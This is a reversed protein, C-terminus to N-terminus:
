GGKTAADLATSNLWAAWADLRTYIAATCDGAGRSAIAFLKGAADIAPGGNDGNCPGGDGLIERPSFVGVADCAEVCAVTRDALVRRVGADAGTADLGGYGFATYKEGKTPAVDLRPVLPTISADANKALILLALDGGCVHNDPPVVIESVHIATGADAAIETSTTVDLTGAPPDFFSADCTTAGGGTLASVCSRAVLVLNPTLLTGTCMQAFTPHTNVVGVVNTATTSTTGGKLASASSEFSPRPEGGCSVLLLGATALARANM